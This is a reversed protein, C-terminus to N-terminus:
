EYSGAVIEHMEETNYYTEALLKIENPTISRIKDELTQFYEIGYGFNSVSLFSDVSNFPGDFLRVIGGLMNIKVLKLESLQVKKLSLNSIEKYIETIASHTNQIGLETSISIIGTNQLSMLSSNVNYTYGKDERLNQMLRSGFYGGLITDVVKLGFYDPNNKSITRKGIRVSNQLAGKKEIFLKIGTKAEELYSSADNNATKASYNMSGLFEGTLKVMKENLNGSLAIRTLGEPFNLSHFDKLHGTTINEFHEPLIRRGFPHCAGFLAEFFYDFSITSVRERSIQYQQLKAEKQMQFELDPFSPNFLIDTVVPIIKDFFCPLMYLQIVAKERDAVFLPFSGFFDFAADIEAASMKSTGGPMLLSTFQSQLPQNERNTGADFHIDIRVIETSRDPFLYVPAGNSLSITQPNHRTGLKPKKILPPHHYFPAAMNHTDTM